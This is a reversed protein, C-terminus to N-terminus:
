VKHIAARTIRITGQGGFEFLLKAQTGDSPVTVPPTRFVWPTGVGPQNETPYATPDGTDGQQPGSLYTGDYAVAVPTNSANLVQCFLQVQGSVNTWGADSQVELVASVRDGPAAIGSLSGQSALYAPFGGGATNAQLWNGSRGDTRAVISYAVGGGQAPYLDWGTPVNAGVTGSILPNPLANGPDGATSPLPTAGPLVADLTDAIMAGMRAAGRRSQHLGDTSLNTDFAMGTPAAVAAAVDIVLIDADPLAKLWRNVTGLVAKQGTALSGNPAVTTLVARAGIGRCLGILTQYRAQITAASVGDAIDNIADAILVNAPSYAAVDTAFRAAMGTMRDGSVGAYNLVTARQRLMQNAWTFMGRQQTSGSDDELDVRSNGLLVFTRGIKPAAFAAAHVGSAWAYWDTSGQAPLAPNAM